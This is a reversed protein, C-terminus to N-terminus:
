GGPLPAAEAGKVDSQKAGPLHSTLWHRTLNRLSPCSLVPMTM